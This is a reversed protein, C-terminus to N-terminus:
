SSKEAKKAWEIVPAFMTEYSNLKQYQVFAMNVVETPTFHGGQLLRVGRWISRQSIIVQASAGSVAGTRADRTANRTNARVAVVARAWSVYEAPVRSVEFEDDYDVKMVQFRDMFAGDQKLRSSYNADAGSGDTNAACVLYTNAHVPMPEESNPFVVIKNALATQVSLLANPFSGDVEDFLFVGGSTMATHFQTPVFTGAANLYGLLEHKAAVAGTTYFPVGLSKALEQCMHTKGVGAPGYMYVNREGEPFSSMIKLLTPFDRHTRGNSKYVTADPRTYTIVVETPRSKEIDSLRSLVATLKEDTATSVSALETVDTRLAAIASNSTEMHGNLTQRTEVTAKLALATMKAQEEVLATLADSTASTAEPAAQAKPLTRVPTEPTVPTGEDDSPGDQPVTYNVPAYSDGRVPIIQQNHEAQANLIVQKRQSPTMNARHTASGKNIASWRESDADFANYYPHLMTDEHPTSAFHWKSVSRDMAEAETKVIILPHAHLVKEPKSTDKLYWGTTNM